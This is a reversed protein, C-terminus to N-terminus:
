IKTKAPSPTLRRAGSVREIGSLDRYSGIDQLGAARLLNRCTEAQDYGHEFLLWGGDMLHAPGDGVIRRICDLGDAGAALAHRPEFRLDGQALHPDGEAVYPPNSVILHFRERALASFWDSLLFCIGGAGRESLPTSSDNGVGRQFLPSFPPNGCPPAVGLLLRANERAVALAEASADTATVEALPRHAKIAIAVAGSGTGLDLVRCPADVPIRELAQEVLVETEPRPIMVAPAVTFELGYFERRGTLYAVPEGALRRAVLTNFRAKGADPLPDRGHAALWTRDRGLAHALLSRAEIRASEADLGHTPVLRAAVDALAREISTL